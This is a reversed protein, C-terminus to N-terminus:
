AYKTPKSPLSYSLNANVQKHIFARGTETWVMQHATRSVQNNDDYQTTRTKTYGKNQYKAYLVYHDQHKFQIGKDCLIKNLAIASMGLEKAITTTTLETASTLIKETYEAKPKLQKIEAEKETIVQSAILFAEALQQERTLSLRSTVEIKGTRLLEAIQEDCWIEFEVDLWQALKLILKEHIWTGPSLGGQRTEVLTLNESKAKLANIYRDTSVLSLWNVPRKNFAQCMATANAMVQGNIVDFEIPTNNYQKIVISM